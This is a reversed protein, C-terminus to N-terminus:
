IVKFKLELCNTNKLLKLTNVLNVQFQQNIVNKECPLIHNTRCHYSLPRPPNPDPNIVLNKKLNIAAALSLDDVYKLHLKSLPKREALPLTIKAGV